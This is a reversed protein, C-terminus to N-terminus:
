RDNKKIFNNTSIKRKPSDGQKCRKTHIHLDIKM